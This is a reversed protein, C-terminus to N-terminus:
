SNAKVFTFVQYRIYSHWATVDSWFSMKNLSNLHIFFFGKRARTAYNIIIVIHLFPADSTMECLKSILGIM